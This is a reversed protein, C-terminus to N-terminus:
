ETAKEPNGSRGACPRQRESLSFVSGHPSSDTTLAAPFTLATRCFSILLFLVFHFLVTVSFDFWGSFTCGFGSLVASFSDPPLMVYSGPVKNRNAGPAPFSCSRCFPLNGGHEACNPLSTM